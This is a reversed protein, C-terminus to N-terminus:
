AAGAALPLHPAAPEAPGVHRALAEALERVDIPKQLTADFGAAAYAALDEQGIRATLAAVPARSAPSPLNRIARLTEFGDMGPMMIDMLILDFTEAAAREVAEEGSSALIPEAGLERLLMALLTRNTANDDVCLIRGGTWQADVPATDQTQALGAVAPRAIFTFRFTSGGPTSAALEVDGDMLRALSRCIHLGLGAGSQQAGPEVQEFPSFLRAAADAPIGPGTDSVDIRIVLRGDTADQAAASVSVGGSATFKIANSLLNGIIQRIRSEDVELAPVSKLRTTDVRLRLGRASAQPAWLAANREILEALNCDSLRLDVRGAEIRAIDLMDNLLALLGQGAEDITRMLAANETDGQRRRLLEVSVLMANLPTRIEHSMIALFDTKAKDARQATDRSARLSDENAKLHTVDQFSGTAKMVGGPARMFRAKAVFWRYGMMRTKLRFESRARGMRRYAGNFDERARALDDPHVVEDLAGLFRAFEEATYGTLATFSESASFTRAAVDPVEWLAIRAAEMATRREEDRRLIEGNADALLRAAHRRSVESILAFGLMCAIAVGLSGFTLVPSGALAPGAALPMLALSSLALGAITVAPYGGRRMDMYGLLAVLSGAGWLLNLFVLSPAFVLGTACAAALLAAWVAAIYGSVVAGASGAGGGHRRVDADFRRCLWAPAPWGAGRPPAAVPDSATGGNPGPAPAGHLGHGTAM